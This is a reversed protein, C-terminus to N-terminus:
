NKNIVFQFPKMEKQFLLRSLKLPKNILKNKNIDIVENVKCFIEITEVEYLLTNLQDIAAQMEQESYLEDKFLVFLDRSSPLRM